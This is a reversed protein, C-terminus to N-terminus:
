AVKEVLVSYAVCRKVDYGRQELWRLAQRLGWKSWPEAPLGEQPTFRQLDMDWTTVRYTEKKADM